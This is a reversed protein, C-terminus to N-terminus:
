IAASQKDVTQEVKNEWRPGKMDEHHCVSQGVLMGRAAYKGPTSLVREAVIDLDNVKNEM